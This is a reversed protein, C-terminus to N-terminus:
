TQKGNISRWFEQVDMGKAKAAAEIKKYAGCNPLLSGCASVLVARPDSLNVKDPDSAPVWVAENKKSDEAEAENGWADWGPRAAGRRFLEIKPLSPFYSEILELSEDPKRSHGRVPADFVSPWQMGAAPAPLKDGRTGVLLLEHENIFWHGTAQRNKHWICHSKYEFGWATLVGLAHPLMPVTAWLFLVCDAAAIEAVPLAEIEHMRMTPYHNDAARDMGTERSYPEFPWPPDALIVGYRKDPLAAQKAGLSAERTARHAKKAEVREAREQKIFARAQPTPKGEADRLLTDLNPAPM